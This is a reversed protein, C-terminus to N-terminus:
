IIVDNGIYGVIINDYGSYSRGFINWNHSSKANDSLATNNGTLRDDFASGILAEIGQLTDTDGYGDAASSSNGLEPLTVNVGAPDLFYIVLDAYDTDIASGTVPDFDGGFIRDSGDDGSLVDSGGGGYLTDNGAGGFLGGGVLAYASLAFGNNQEGDDGGYIVDAGGDPDTPDAFDGYLGDVGADGYIEDNGMGGFVLDSGEGAHIEDNGSDGPIATPPVLTVPDIPDVMVTINDWAPPPDGDGCIVDNGNLADDDAGGFLVDDDAGGFIFDDRQGGNITDNGPGGFLYDTRTGGVITDNGEEGLITTSTDANGILNDNTGRGRVASIGEVTDSDGWGDTATGAPLNVNISRTGGDMSYDLLDFGGGGAIEDDGEGGRLLDNDGGGSLEDDGKNGELVDYGPGGNLLDDDDGGALQDDGAEGWLEVPIADDGALGSCDVIDDGAGARVRVLKVKDALPWGEIEANLAAWEQDPTRGHGAPNWTPAVFLPAGSFSVQVFTIDEDPLPEIPPPGVPDGQYISGAVLTELSIVIIDDGATGTVVLIDGQLVATQAYGATSALAVVVAAVWLSRVAVRFSVRSSCVGRLGRTGSDTTM